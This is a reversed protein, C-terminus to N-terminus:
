THLRGDPLCTFLMSSAGGSLLSIDPEDGMLAWSIQSPWPNAGAVSVFRASDPCETMVSNVSSIIRQIDSVNGIFSSLRIFTLYQDIYSPTINTLGVIARLDALTLNSVDGSELATKVKTIAAIHTSVEDCNPTPQIAVLGNSIDDGPWNSRDSCYTISSLNRNLKFTDADFSPRDGLFSVVIINNDEFSGLGINTINDGFLMTKLENKYFAYDGITIITDPLTVSTLHSSAFAYDSIGMVISGDISEPIVIDSACVVWVAM